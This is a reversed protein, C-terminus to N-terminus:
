CALCACGVHGEQEACATAPSMCAGLCECYSGAECGESPAVCGVFLPDADYRICVNPSACDACSTLQLCETPPLCPGFCGDQVSPITGQPCEPTAADCSVESLDCSRAFVCRGYACTVDDPVIQMAMCADMACVAPCTPFPTGKPEAACTCCDTKLQCDDPTQCEPGGSGGVGAQNGSGGGANGSSGGAGGTTGISGGSGANGGGSANGSGSTGSSGGGDGTGATGSSGGARGGGGQGAGASSSGADTGGTGVGAVGGAGRGSSGGTGGGKGGVSGGSGGNGATGGDSEARSFSSGSCAASVAGVLL